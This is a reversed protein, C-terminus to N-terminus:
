ISNKKGVAAAIGIGIIGFVASGAYAGVRIKTILTQFYESKEDFEVAFRSHLTTLKGAASNFASASKGLDEQAANMREIGDELVQVLLKKQGEAKAPNHNTFLKIYVGLLPIVLGCWEYVNQSATFYADIGNMMYTKTEGILAASETSYDKRFKDLEALTENFAKWPVIRDILKDYMSLAHDITDVGKKVVEM